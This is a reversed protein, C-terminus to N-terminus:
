REVSITVIGIEVYLSVRRLRKLYCFLEVDYTWGIEKWSFVNREGEVSVKEAVEKV